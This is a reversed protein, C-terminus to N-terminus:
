TSTDPQWILNEKAELFGQNCKQLQWFEITNINLNNGYAYVRFENGKIYDLYIASAFLYEDFFVEVLYKDVFIRLDFVPKTSVLDYNFPVIKKGM